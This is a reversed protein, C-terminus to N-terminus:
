KNIKINFLALDDTNSIEKYAEEIGQILTNFGFTETTSKDFPYDNDVSSENIWGPLINKLHIIMEGIEPSNSSSITVIHTAIFPLPKLYPKLKNPPDKIEIIEEVIFNGTCYYNSKNKLYPQSVKLRSFDVAINFHSTNAVNKYLEYTNANKFDLKFGINEYGIASYPIQLKSLKRFRALDVYGKLQNIRNEPFYQNILESNGFIWIYYPRKQKIVVSKGKPNTVNAPYYLGDFDSELKILLTEINETKLRQIFNTTTSQVETRLSNLPNDNGGVDYIGDSILISISDNKARNLAIKFMENLDSNGSSPSQFGNYTLKSKLINPNNGIDYVELKVEKKKTDPKAKGSMMHYSYPIDDEVLNPYQALKNVVEVFETSGKVYGFMSGSNEIYFTVHSIKSYKETISDEVQTPIESFRNDHKCSITIFLIALSLFSYVLRIM